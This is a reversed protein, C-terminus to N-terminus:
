SRRLRRFISRMGSGSHASGGFSRIPSRSAATSARSRPAPQRAPQALGHGERFCHSADVAEGVGPDGAVDLVDLHAEGILAVREGPDALVQQRGFTDRRAIDEDRAVFKPGDGAEGAAVIQQALADGARHHHRDAGLRIAHRLADQVEAPARGLEAAQQGRLCPKVAGGPGHGVARAQRVYSVELRAVQSLPGALDQGRGGVRGPAEELAPPLRRELM